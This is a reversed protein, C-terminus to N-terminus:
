ISPAAMPDGSTEIMALKQMSCQTCSWLFGGVPIPMDIIDEHDPGMAHFFSAPELSMEVADM